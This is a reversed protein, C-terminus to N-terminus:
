ELQLLYIHLMWRLINWSSMPQLVTILVAFIFINTLIVSQIIVVFRRICCSFNSLVNTLISHGFCRRYLYEDYYNMHYSYNKIEFRWLSPSLSSLEDASISLYFIFYISMLIIWLFLALANDWINLHQVFPRFTYRSFCSRFLSFSSDSYQVFPRLTYRGFFYISSSYISSGFLESFLPM